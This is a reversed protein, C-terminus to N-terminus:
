VSLALNGKASIKQVFEIMSQVGQGSGGTESQSGGGSDKWAYIDLHAWPVDGVFEQLFLAATIAGGFGDSCNAIDAFNSRLSGRYGSFLPMRWTWEGTQQASELILDALQDHNAFLGAVEAGLGVKIAGTLTALNVVLMPAEGESRKIAVDLADALVLRGEADTNHIEVTMGSRATIVDGPHFSRSGVANEALALYFDCPHDFGSQVCWYALAIVAASGGMDKKMWRMASSPKIDLGGSDFTIGKGVFALPRKGAGAEPRYSIHVLRPGEVAGEGVARLLHMNETLLRDGQWVQTNLGPRKAFLQAAAEAYTRPNLTGGPLNTLHRALNTAMAVAAVKRVEVANLDVSDKALYLRPLPRRQRKPNDRNEQFSYSALELGLWAGRQEDPSAHVFEILVKDVKSALMTPLCGGVQERARVYPTRDLLGHHGLVKEKSPRLVWVPGFKGATHFVEGEHGSLTEMQWKSLHKGLMSKQLKLDRRSFFFVYGRKGSQFENRRIWRTSEIWSRLPLGFIREDHPKTTTSSKAKKSTKKKTTRM